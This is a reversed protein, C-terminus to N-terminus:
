PFPIPRPAPAHRVPSICHAPAAPVTGPRRSRQWRLDRRHPHGVHYAAASSELERRPVAILADEAPEYEARLLDGAGTLWTRLRDRSSRFMHELSYSFRRVSQL